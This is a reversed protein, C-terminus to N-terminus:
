LCFYHVIHLCIDLFNMVGALSLYDGLIVFFDWVFGMFCADVLSFVLM